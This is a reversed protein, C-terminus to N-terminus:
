QVWLIGFLFIDIKIIKKKIKAVLVPDYPASLCRM